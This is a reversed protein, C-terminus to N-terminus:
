LGIAFRRGQYELEVQYDLIRIVRAGSITEGPVLKQKNIVAVPRGNIISIAELSLRPMDPEPRVARAAAPQTVPLAPVLTGPLGGALAPSATPLGGLRTVPADRADRAVPVTGASRPALAAPMAPRAVPLSPVVPKVLAVATPTPAPRPPAPMAPAPRPAKLVPAAVAQLAPAASAQVAPLTAPTAAAAPRLPAPKRVSLPQAQPAGAPLLVYATMGSHLRHEPNALAVKIGFTKIDRKIRNVDRQTAFETEPAIFSVQGQLEEGSALRVPLAQGVMVRNMYSEEVEARVWVDDLDIITVIPDGQRIVEGQRAVRLSVVGSLPARVETYGLRATIQTLQARAQDLQARIQEVEQSSVAVQRENARALELDAQAVRVRDDLSRIRAETVRLSTEVKEADQRPMLGQKVLDSSREFDRQLQALEAKSEERQSRDLRLQERSQSLKAEQQQVAAQQRERDPEIEERGLEAILDNQAVRSGESVHLRTIRGDIKAAVIVENAAVVGSLRLAGSDQFQSRFYTLGGVLVVLSIVVSLSKM